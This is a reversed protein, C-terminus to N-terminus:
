PAQVQRKQRDKLVVIENAADRFLNSIRQCYDAHTGTLAKDAYGQWEEQAKRLRQEVTM